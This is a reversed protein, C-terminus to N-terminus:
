LPSSHLKNRLDEARKQYSEARAQDKFCEGYVYSLAQLVEWDKKDKSFAVEFSDRSETCLGQKLYANGLKVYPEKLDPALAVARNLYEIAEGYSGNSYLENSVEVYVSAYLEKIHSSMYQEFGAAVGSDKYMFQAFIEKNRIIAQNPDYSNKPVLKKLFGSNSWVYGDIQPTFDLFTYIAFKDKNLKLLSIMYADSGNEKLSAFNDPVILNPFERLVQERYEKYSLSGGKILMMNKRNPYTYYIYQSNFATTDGLIFIIANDEASALVDQGLWDGLHFNRM